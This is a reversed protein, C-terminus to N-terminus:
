RSQLGLCHSVASLFRRLYSILLVSLCSILVSLYHLGCVTFANGKALLPKPRGIKPEMECSFFCPNLFPSIWGSGLAPSPYEKLLGSLRRAYMNPLLM